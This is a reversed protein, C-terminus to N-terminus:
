RKLKVTAEAAEEQEPAPTIIDVANPSHAVFRHRRIAPMGDYRGRRPQITVHYGDSTARGTVTTVAIDGDRYKMSIGDDEYLTYDTDPGPYIHWTLLEPTAVGVYATPEQMPIIAGAKIFLCGGRNAPYEAKVWAPGRIINDTWFDYWDGEPLFVQDTFASVLIADGFMYQQLCQSAEPHQPFALPMTRMIPLGTQHAQHAAAYIYPTLQNRLNAYFKYAAFREPPLFWPQNYMHWSFGQALAQFFGYHIGPLDFIQMDTCVNSQGSLGLNLLAPITKAGGGTDGAWIAAYRQIAAHGSPTFIQVRRSTHETFGNNMQKALLVPYLNHMEADDMGNRWKRDPHYLVQNAGDLKFADAGDDVFQKLHEFWPVGTKTLKDMSLPRFHPDKIIDDAVDGDEAPMPKPLKGDHILMEEYESLDYDCCLWLSLKFGMQHLTSCFTGYNKGKLWFPIHFRKQSWKKDITYDYHNEMWDPELGIVDCPIGQRRFEYAEYLIDRARVEREDCVFTMGYSWKPLVYSPGTVSTYLKLAEAPSDAAFLFYELMGRDAHFALCNPDTAGADFRHFWTTNLYLGWGRSCSVFPIPTYSTVNTIAMVNKHGRKNICTRTEDGFGFLQDDPSLKLELSFGTRDDGRPPAATQLIIAGDPRSLTWAGDATHVALVAEDTTLTTTEEQNANIAVRCDPWDLNLIRYRELGGPQFRGSTDLRLRFIKPALVDVILTAGTNLVLNHTIM